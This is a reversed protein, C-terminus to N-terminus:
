MFFQESIVKNDKVQYVCMETMDMDGGEKMTINMRMTCAISNTAVLPESVTLSHMEKVMEQWKKGKELIADLGKTEKEFMESARPEISIAENSFLEKQATEFDGKRCLQVLQNAIEQTTM